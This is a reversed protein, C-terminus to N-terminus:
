PTPASAEDLARLEDATWGLVNGGLCLPHVVLDTSSINRM